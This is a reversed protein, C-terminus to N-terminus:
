NGNDGTVDGFCDMSKVKINADIGEFFAGSGFSAIPFGTECHFNATTANVGYRLDTTADIGIGNDVAIWVAYRGTFGPVNTETIVGTMRVAKCDEEFVMCTVDGKAWTKLVGDVDYNYVEFTGSLTGAKLTAKYSHFETGPPFIGGPEFNLLVYNVKAWGEGSMWNKRANISGPIYDNPVTINPKLLRATADSLDPAQSSDELSCSSVLILISFFFASSWSNLNLKKKM